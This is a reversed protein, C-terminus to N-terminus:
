AVKPTARVGFHMYQEGTELRYFVVAEWNESDKLRLAFENERVPVLVYEEVPHPDLEALPGTQTMRMRLSSEHEFM